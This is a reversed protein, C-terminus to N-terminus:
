QLVTLRYSGFTEVLIPLESTAGVVEAGAGGGTDPSAISQVHLSGPM